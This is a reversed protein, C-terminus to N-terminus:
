VEGGIEGGVAVVGVFGGLADDRNAFGFFEGFSKFGEANFLEARTMVGVIKDKKLERPSESLGLESAHLVLLILSEAMEVLKDHNVVGNGDEKELEFFKQFNNVLIGASQGVLEVAINETVGEYVGCVPHSAGIEVESVAANVAHVTKFAKFGVEGEDFIM